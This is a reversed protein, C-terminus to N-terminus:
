QQRPVHETIIMQGDHPTTAISRLQSTAACPWHMSTSSAHLWRFLGFAYRDRSSVGSRMPTTLQLWGTKSLAVQNLCQPPHLKVGKLPGDPIPSTALVLRAHTWLNRKLSHDHPSNRKLRRRSTCEKMDQIQRSREITQKSGRVSGAHSACSYVTCWSPVKPESWKQTRNCHLETTM